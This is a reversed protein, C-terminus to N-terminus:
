LILFFHFLGKMCFFKMSLVTLDFYEASKTAVLLRTVMKKEINGSLFVGMSWLFHQYIQGSATSHFSNM